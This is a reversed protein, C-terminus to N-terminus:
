IAFMLSVPTHLTRNTFFGITNDGRLLYPRSKILTPPAALLLYVGVNAAFKAIAECCDSVLCYCGIYCDCVLRPSRAFGFKM